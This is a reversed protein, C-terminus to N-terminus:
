LPLTKEIQRNQFLVYESYGAAKALEVGKDFDAGVDEPRHADSGFVIPVGVQCYIKLVDLSPYIEKVPKRLGSTNIEIAVKSEKLIEATDQIKGTLDKSPRHGFKKVLDVHALIDFLGTQASRELYDYYEYYIANTDKEDWGNIEDPNDFAWSEIFHVSGYVYDYPYGSLQERTKEEYGPLFDAEIGIKIKIQSAFRLRLDELMKQYDPLQSPDMTIGPLRHPIFPAHDSFGIEDLGISIAKEVYEHTQGIAHGCLPTHMHYDSIPIM